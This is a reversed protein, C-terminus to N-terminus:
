WRIAEPLHFINTGTITSRIHFVKGGKVLQKIKEELGSSTGRLLENIKPMGDMSLSIEFDNRMIFNWIDDKCIGNTSIRFRTEIPLKKCFDVVSRILNPNLTPEGGFFTVVLKKASHFKNLFAAIMKEALEGGMYEKNDGGNAYCYQCNLNCDRTAILVLWLTKLSSM